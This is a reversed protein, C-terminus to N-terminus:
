SPASSSRAAAAVWAQAQPVAPVRGRPLKQLTLTLTLTKKLTRPQAADADMGNRRVLSVPRDHMNRASDESWRVGTAVHLNRRGAIVIGQSTHHAARADQGMAIGIKSVRTHTGEKERKGMITHQRTM